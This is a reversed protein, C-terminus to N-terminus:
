KMEVLLAIFIALEAIIQAQRRCEPCEKSLFESTTLDEVLSAAGSLDGVKVQAAVLKAKSYFLTFRNINQFIETWEDNEYYDYDLEECEEILQAKLLTVMSELLDDLLEDFKDKTM